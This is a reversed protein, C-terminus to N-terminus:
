ANIYSVAVQKSNIKIGIGIQHLGEDNTWEFKYAEINKTIKLNCNIVKKPEGVTEIYRSKYDGVIDEKDNGPTKKAIENSIEFDDTTTYIGNLILMEGNDIIEYVIIGHFPDM